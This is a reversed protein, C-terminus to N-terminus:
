LGNLFALLQDGPRYSGARADHLREKFGDIYPALPGDPTRQLSWSYKPSHEM